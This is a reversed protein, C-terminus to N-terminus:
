NEPSLVIQARNIQGALSNVTSYYDILKISFEIGFIMKISYFLRKSFINKEKEADSSVGGTGVRNPWGKIDIFDDDLGLSEEEKMFLCNKVVPLLTNAIDKINEEETLGKKIEYENVVIEFPQSVSLVNYGDKFHYRVEYSGLEWPILNNNFVLEGSVIDQGKVKKVGTVFKSKNIFHDREEDTWSEKKEEESSEENNKGKGTLNYLWRGKCSKTTVSRKKNQTVRYIGIWDFPTITNKPASWRILIPSGLEFIKGELENTRDQVPSSKAVHHVEIQYLDSSPLSDQSDSRKNSQTNDHSKTFQQVVKEATDDYVEKTKEFLKTASNSFSGRRRLNPASDNRSSAVLVIGDSDEEDTTPSVTDPDNLSNAWKNVARKLSKNSIVRKLGIEKIDRQVTDYINKIRADKNMFKSVEKIIGSEAGSKKRVVTNGYIRNM